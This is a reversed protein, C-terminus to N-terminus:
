YAYCQKCSNFPLKCQHQNGHICDNPLGQYFERESEEEEYERERDGADDQVKEYADLGREYEPADAPDIPRIPRRNM